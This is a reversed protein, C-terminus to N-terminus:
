LARSEGDWAFICILASILPGSELACTWHRVEKSANRGSQVYVLM